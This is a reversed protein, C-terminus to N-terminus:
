FDLISRQPSKKKLSDFTREGGLISGLRQGTVGEMRREVERKFNELWPNGGYTNAAAYLMGYAYPNDGHEVPIWLNRPRGAQSVIEKFKAIIDDHSMSHILPELGSQGLFRAAAPPARKVGTHQFNFFFDGRPLRLLPNLEPITVETFGEPDVFCLYHPSRGVSRMKDAILSVAEGRSMVYVDYNGQPLLIPLRRQLTEAAKRQPEVFHYHDFGNAKAGITASGPVITQVGKVPISTLGSGACLDIFHLTDFQGEARARSLIPLYISLVYRMWVLKIVPWPGDKPYVTEPDIGLLPVALVQLESVKRRWWDDNAERPM